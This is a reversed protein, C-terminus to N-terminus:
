SKVDIMMMLLRIDRKFVLHSDPFIVFLEYCVGESFLTLPIHDILCWITLVRGLFCHFDGLLVLFSQPNWCLCFLLQVLYFCFMCIFMHLVLGVLPFFKFLYFFIRSLPQTLTVYNVLKKLKQIRSSILLDHSM